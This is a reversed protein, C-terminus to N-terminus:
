SREKQTVTMQWAKEAISEVKKEAPEWTEMHHGLIKWVEEEKEIRPLCDALDIRTNKDVKNHCKLEEAQTLLYEERKQSEKDSKHSATKREKIHLAGEHIDKTMDKQKPEKKERQDM